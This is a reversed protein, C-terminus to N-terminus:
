QAGVIFFKSPISSLKINLQYKVCITYQSQLIISNSFISCAFLLFFGGELGLRLHYMANVNGYAM